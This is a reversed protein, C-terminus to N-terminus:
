ENEPAVAGPPVAPGEFLTPPEKGAAIAQEEERFQEEPTKRPRLYPELAELDQVSLTGSAQKLRMTNLIYDYRARYYRVINDYLLFQQDLVQVITRTGVEFGAETAELATRSSQVAQRLAQVRSIDTEVALFSDRTISETERTVRQLAERSARHLYVAERVRSTTAGGAFLPLNFEIGISDRDFNSDAPLAGVDLGTDQLSVVDRNGVSAVLDLTPLHGNRRSSIEDRALQEDIRSVILDLNQAMSQDIWAEVNFPDPTKLPVGDGPAALDRIYEGTIERLLFRTRALERKAQIEDATAQDFAAQSEQVDTVAILGVEFRQKAQELQRAIALRNAHIALLTDEAALVDFYRTVVRVILDQQAAERVTEARAVQKEAQKLGVIQDWRFLTQRLTFTWATTDSDTRSQFPFPVVVFNGSGPPQEIPANQVGDGDSTATEYSAGFGLQPLYAGRAQPVAELAALRRADAERITPDRQLAQQYIELLTASEAPATLGLLGIAAALLGTFRHIHM